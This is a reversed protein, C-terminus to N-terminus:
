PPPRLGSQSDLRALVCMCIALERMVWSLMFTSTQLPSCELEPAYSPSPSVAKLLSPALEPLAATQNWGELNVATTLRRIAATLPDDPRGPVALRTAM